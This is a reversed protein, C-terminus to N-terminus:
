SVLALFTALLGWPVVVAGTWACVKVMDLRDGAAARAARHAAPRTPLATARM